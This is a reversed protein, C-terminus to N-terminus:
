AEYRKDVVIFQVAFIFSVSMKSLIYQARFFTENTCVSDGSSYDYSIGILTMSVVAYLIVSLYLSCM